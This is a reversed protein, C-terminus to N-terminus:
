DLLVSSKQKKKLRVYGAAAAALSSPLCELASCDVAFRSGAGDSESEFCSSMPFLDLSRSSCAARAEVGSISSLVEVFSRGPKVRLFPVDLLLGAPSPSGFEESGSTKIQAEL